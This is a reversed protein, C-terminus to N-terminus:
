ANHYELRSNYVVKQVFHWFKLFGRSAKMVWMLLSVWSAVVVHLMTRLPSYLSSSTKFVKFTLSWFPIAATKLYFSLLLALALDRRRCSPWKSVFGVMVSFVLAPTIARKLKRWLFLICWDILCCSGTTGTAILLYGWGASIHLWPAPCQITTTRVGLFDINASSAISFKWKIQSAPWRKQNNMQHLPHPFSGGPLRLLCTTQRICHKWFLGGILAIAQACQM